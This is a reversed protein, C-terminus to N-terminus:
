IDKPNAKELVLKLFQKTLRCCFKDTIRNRESGKHSNMQGNTVVMFRDMGTIDLYIRYKSKPLLRNEQIVEPIHSLSTASWIVKSLKRVFNSHWRPLCQQVYEFRRLVLCVVGIEGGIILPIGELQSNNLRNVFKSFFIILDM